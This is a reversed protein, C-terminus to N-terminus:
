ASEAWNKFYLKVAYILWTASHISYFFGLPILLEPNAASTFLTHHSWQSYFCFLSFSFFSFLSFSLSLFLCSLVQIACETFSDQPFFGAHSWICLSSSINHICLFSEFVTSFAVENQGTANANKFKWFYYKLLKKRWHSQFSVDGSFLM